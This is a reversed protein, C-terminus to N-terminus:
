SARVRPPQPSAPAPPRSSKPWSRAPMVLRAWSVPCHHRGGAQPDRRGTSTECRCRGGRGSTLAAAKAGEGATQQLAALQARLDDVNAAQAAVAAEATAIREAAAKASSSAAAELAAVQQRLRDAEAKRDALALSDSRAGSELSGVKAMLEGERATAAALNARTVELEQALM